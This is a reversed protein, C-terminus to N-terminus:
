SLHKRETPPYHFFSNSQSATPRPAIRTLPPTDRRSVKSFQPCVVNEWDRRFIDAM